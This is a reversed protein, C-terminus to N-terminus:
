SCVTFVAFAFAFSDLLIGLSVYAECGTMRLWPVLVM